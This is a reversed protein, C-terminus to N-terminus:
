RQAVPSVINVQLTVLESIIERGYGSKFFKELERAKARSEIIEVHILVWPRLNKTSYNKGRNHQELRKDVNETLGVYHTRNILSKLIYVYM